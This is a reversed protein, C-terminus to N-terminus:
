SVMGLRRLVDLAEEMTPCAVGAPLHRPLLEVAERVTAAGDLRIARMLPLVWPPATNDAEKMPSAPPPLSPVLDHPDAEGDDPMTAALVREILTEFARRPLSSFHYEHRNGGQCTVVRFRWEAERALRTIANKSAPLGPLRLAVLEAGSFWEKLCRAERMVQVLTAELYLVRRRLEAWESAPVSVSLEFGQDNSM